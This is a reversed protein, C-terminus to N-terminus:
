LNESGASERLVRGPIRSEGNQRESQESGSLGTLLQRLGVTTEDTEDTELSGWPLVGSALIAAEDAPLPRAFFFGQGYRCGMRALQVWQERTEIGETVVSIDLSAALKLISDVIQGGDSHMEEVFSRDIKLTDFPLRHLQSLSSYGTGFDDIELGVGLSELQRLIRQAIAPDEAVMSETVELHLRAPIVGTSALAAEVYGPLEPDVFQKASLNVSMTYDSNWESLQELSARLVWRGLPLILGTEEAVRIFEGPPVMGRGPRNWRVLAEFGALRGTQLEVQPQYHLCFEGDEIAQRMASEIEIRAMASDHMGKDFLCYRGRGETKAAYMATDARQLMEESTRVDSSSVAIGISTTCFIHASGLDFAPKMQRQIENALEVAEITSEIEEILILFEDGGLRALATKTQMTNEIAAELRRSVGLLLQDGMVHGLADNILKFRDLDLFLVGFRREADEQQRELLQDLRGVIGLRNELGTLPDLLKGSTLDSSSGAVRLAKGASDRVAAGSALVWRWTGDTHRVRHEHEFQDSYRDIVFNELSNKLRNRDAPHVRGLWDGLASLKAETAIGLMEKWRDSYYVSGSVCDWDWIGQNSGKVALAYREEATKLAEEALHQETVDRAICQFGILRRKENRLFQTSQGIWRREGEATIMPLEMFISATRRKVQAAIEERLLAFASKEILTSVKTGLTTHGFLREFAPNHFEIKGARDTRYIIDGSNEVVQRYRAESQALEATRQVVKADLELTLLKLENNKEDREDLAQRLYRFSEELRRAFRDVAFAIERFERIGMNQPRHRLSSDESRWETLATAIAEIPESLRRALWGGVWIALLCILSLLLGVAGIFHNLESEIQAQPIAAVVSWRAREIQLPVAINKDGRLGMFEQWLGNARWQVPLWPSLPPYQEEQSAFVIRSNEDIVVLLMRQHTVVVELPIRRIDISGEVIGAFQGSLDFIPASIAVISDNGLGRGQFIGSIYTKGTREAERFYPRDAVSRKAFEAPVVSSEGRKVTRLLEGKADAVLMTLFGDNNEVVSELSLKLESDWKQKELRSLRKAITAVASEHRKLHGDIGDRIRLGAERLEQASNKELQWRFLQQGLVGMALAGLVTFAVVYGSLLTQFSIPRKDFLSM